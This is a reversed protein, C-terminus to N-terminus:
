LSFALRTGEDIARLADLESAVHAGGIIDIEIGAAALADALERHSEQGACTVITDVRLTQEAGGRVTYHLGEADIRLYTCGSVMTVGRRKLRNRHIWGTSKGLRDGPRAATRQLM